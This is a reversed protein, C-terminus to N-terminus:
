QAFPNGFLSLAVLTHLLVSLFFGWWYYCHAPFYYKQYWQNKWLIEFMQRGMVCRCSFFVLFLFTLNSIGLLFLLQIDSIFPLVPMQVVRKRM